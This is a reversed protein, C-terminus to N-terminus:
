VESAERKRRSRDRCIMVVIMVMMLVFASVIAFKIIVLLFGAIVFLSKLLALALTILALVTGGRAFAALFAM